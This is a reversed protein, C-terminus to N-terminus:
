NHHCLRRSRTTAIFDCFGAFKQSVLVFGLSGITLWNSAIEGFSGVILTLLCIAGAACIALFGIDGPSLKHEPKRLALESWIIQLLFMYFALVCFGVARHPQSQVLSAGVLVSVLALPYCILSWLASRSM